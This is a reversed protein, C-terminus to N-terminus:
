SSAPPKRPVMMTAPFPEDAATGPAAALAKRPLIMTAPFEEVPAERLLLDPTEDVPAPAPTDRRARQRDAQHRLEAVEIRMQDFQKRLQTSAQESQQRAQELRAVREASAKLKRGWWGAGILAAALAGILVGGLVAAITEM